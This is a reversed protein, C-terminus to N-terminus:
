PAIVTVTNLFTMAVYISRTNPNAALGAGDLGINLSEALTRTAGNIFYVLGSSSDSVLVQHGAGLAVHSPNGARPLSIASLVTGTAGDIVFVRMKLSDSAYVQNLSSDVALGPLFEAQTVPYTNTVLNTTGDIVALSPPTGVVTVYILNRLSDVAIQELVGGFGVTATVTNSGGDIVRVTNDSDSTYIRNTVSDVAVYTAGADAISAVVTNTGGDIVSLTSSLGDFLAVYIQNTVSNVAIGEPSGGVTITATVRHGDIVSVTGDGENSSYTLNTAPNVAVFFPTKGVKIQSTTDGFLVNPLFLLAVFCIFTSKM